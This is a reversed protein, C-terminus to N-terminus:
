QTLDAAESEPKVSLIDIDRPSVQFCPDSVLDWADGPEKFLM